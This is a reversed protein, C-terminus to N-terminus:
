MARIFPGKRLPLKKVEGTIEFNMKQSSASNKWVDLLVVELTSKEIRNYEQYSNRKNAYTCSIVYKGAKLMCTKHSGQGIAPPNGSVRIQTSYSAGPLLEPFSKGTIASLCFSLGTSVREVSDKDPGTINWKLNFANIMYTCLLFKKKSVNTLVVVLNFNEGAKVKTLSMQRAQLKKGCIECSSNKLACNFCSKRNGKKHRNCLPCKNWRVKVNLAQKACKEGCVLNGPMIKLTVQLGDVAVAKEAAIANPASTSLTGILFLVPFSVALLKIKLNLEM